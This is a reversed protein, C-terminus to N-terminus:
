IWVNGAANRRLNNGRQKGMRVAANPLNNLEELTVGAALAEQPTVRIQRESGECIAPREATLKGGDGYTPYTFFINEM